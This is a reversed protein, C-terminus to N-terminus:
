RLNKMGYEKVADIFAELNEYPVEPEVVHTPALVLGGGKGVEEILRKCTAKVEEPTGFPLISQTGICGWFSLRDGYLRKIEVPDMCEPQVPNLIEVGIEILDPIIKQMNGDGHYFILIDPKCKKASSIVKALRPKILKRWLEPSMMMDLQTAVDDGLSLIDVEAKAYREAMGSRIETIKDMLVEAFEPEALMDVMFNDMGRLYWATEFITMQMSGIVILDKEKLESVKKHVGEWRYDENLDPFPYSEIEEISQFDAMPHLMEQFHAMSGAIGMVGWESLWSLPEAKEPLNKYFKKYDITLKTSGPGVSRMPFNFYEEYASTGTRKKFEDVQAPCLYFDFPVSEPNDRRLARFVNERNKVCKGELQL